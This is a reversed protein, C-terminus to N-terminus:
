AHHVEEGTEQGRLPLPVLRTPSRFLLDRRMPDEEPSMAPLALPLTPAPQPLLRGEDLSLVRECLVLLAPSHTALVLTKGQALAAITEVLAAETDADLHATPEDLVLLPANALFARALAVRQAEGGSIGLGREDILTNLGAPLAAAFDMVRAESAAAEIEQRSAQPRGLAINEALTGPFLYPRQGIWAVHVPATEAPPRGNMYIEGESIGTFGALISLLSSKGAGSPGVLAVKEGQDIRLSIDSLAPSTRGPYRLTVHRLEIQQMVEQARQQSQATEPPPAAQLLADIHAAATLADVRDHYAAAFARLPQFYSPALLLVFLGTQLSMGTPSNGLQIYHLLSLGVYLALIAIAFTSFFELIASSLLAIRQVAMTRESLEHSADAITQEARATAGLAKITQMGQLYDLLTASLGRTIAMQKRSVSEAGKGILAMYFPIVPTTLLLIVGSVWDTPFIVVLFLLPCLATGVLRPIYRTYYPELKDVQELLTHATEATQADASAMVPGQSVFLTELMARRLRQQIRLAGEAPWRQAFYACACRLISGAGFVFLWPVVSALAAHEIVVLQISRAFAFAQLIIALTTGSTALSTATVFRRGHALYARLFRKSAAQDSSAASM